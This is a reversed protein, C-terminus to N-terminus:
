TARPEVKYGYEVTKTIHEPSGDTPMSATSAYTFIYDDSEADEDRAHSSLKGSFKSKIGPTLDIEDESRRRPQSRRSNIYINAGSGSRYSSSLLRPFLKRVFPKAAPISGGIISLNLELVCWM